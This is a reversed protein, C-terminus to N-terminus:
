QLPRSIAVGHPGHRLWEDRRSPLVSAGAHFRFEGRSEAIHGNNETAPTFAEYRVGYTLTFKPLIHWDDSAYAIFGWDHFYTATSELPNNPNAFQVKANAPNGLLFDAFDNGTLAVGSSGGVSVPLSTFAGTFAFQGNPVSDNDRDNDM